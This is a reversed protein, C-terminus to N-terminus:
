STDSLVLCIDGLFVFFSQSIDKRIAHTIDYVMIQKKFSLERKASAKKISSTMHLARGADNIYNEGFPGFVQDHGKVTFERIWRPM